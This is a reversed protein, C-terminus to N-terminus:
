THDYISELMFLMSDYFVCIKTKETDLHQLHENKHQLLTVFLVLVLPLSQGSLNSVDYKGHNSLLLYPLANSHM